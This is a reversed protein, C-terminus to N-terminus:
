RTSCGPFDSTALLRDARTTTPMWDWVGRQLMSMALDHRGLSLTDGHRTVELYKQRRYLLPFTSIRRRGEPQVLL